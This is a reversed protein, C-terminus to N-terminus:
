RRLWVLNGQDHKTERGSQDLPVDRYEKISLIAIASLAGGTMVYFAPCLIGSRISQRDHRRAVDLDAARLRWVAGGRFWLQGFTRNACAPPFCRPWNWWSHRRVAGNAVPPFAKQWGVCCWCSPCGIVSRNYTLILGVAGTAGAMIGSTVVLAARWGMRDGYAGSVVAGVPRMLFFAAGFAAYTGYM